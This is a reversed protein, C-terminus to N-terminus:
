KNDTSCRDEVPIKQRVLDGEEFVEVKYVINYKMEIASVKRETNAIVEENLSQITQTQEVSIL